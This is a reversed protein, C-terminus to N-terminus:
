NTLCERMEFYVFCYINMYKRHVINYTNIINQNILIIIIFEINCNM